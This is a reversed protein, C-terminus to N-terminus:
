AAEGTAEHDWLTGSFARHQLSAFLEDLAALHTRYVALQAEVAQVRQAFELQRTLPPLPVELERLKGLTIERFTAGKVQRQIWSQAAHSRLYALLYERTVKDGPAIRATGQTLNAGDLEVPVLATTGVTARISMVIDGADVRSRVFKAAISPDTHRLGDTVIEGEKLDGTRIYPVGGEFEDGAQVIGYTVITGERVVESLQEKPYDESRFVHMLTSQTLDGLLAIAERRKARLTDVQDLIAAIREQQALSPLPIPLPALDKKNLQPVSSGSVLKGLDVALFWQYLYNLDLVDQHPKMAMLNPDLVAARQVIRKKNTGIAGGRKPIVVAGGPCTASKQWPAASWQRTTLIYKENGSRNMDSVRTLLYGGEQGQWDEGEPLSSGAYFDVVEGLLASRVTM